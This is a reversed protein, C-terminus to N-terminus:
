SVLPDGVLIIVQKRCTCFGKAPFIWALICTM